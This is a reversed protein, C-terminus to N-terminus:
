VPVLPQKDVTPAEQDFIHAEGPPADPEDRPGSPARESAVVVTVMGALALFADPAHPASMVDYLTSVVIFSVAAAVGCLAAPAWRPDRESVTRRATLIVSLPFLLYVVLGVVGTEILRGLIESDLIRYTEHAYSGHGRGFALHTWVDPRIADYDATRDSVTAVQGADSRTFQSLVNNVAGPSIAAVMFCMVLGLPALSLLERRRFYALTVIAAGPALFASKRQTAFMAALLIVISVGYLIQRSRVKTKILGLIAIPVAMTLMAILEVGYITPGQVWRRGQADVASQNTDSLLEFPGRFIQGSWSLFLNNSFRYEYIVGVGVIVALILTYRLFAPVESKRVSSAFILFIFMYSVLLPLKKFALTLEGTQNLYRADLVVSLFACAIVAGLAIHVRTLRLRPAAGPGALFSILWIVAVVPLVIRDLTMDVPTSFKLQIRDFPVLWFMTILGAVSWPLLRTTRPWDAAAFGTLRSPKEPRPEERRLWRRLLLLIAFTLGFATIFTLGGIVIRAKGNTVDGRASGLQRLQPLMQEDFRQQRALGVLFDRLGPVVSDALRKAEEYSPAEVYISLLPEYSDSQMELRYPARSDRILNAREESGPELLPIPVDATTRAVGSIQEPAVGARKGIAELVPPTTMLRGYLEARKELNSLDQPLATRYLISEDPTDVLMRVTAAGVVLNGRTNFKAAIAGVVTSIILLV